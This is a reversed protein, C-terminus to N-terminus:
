AWDDLTTDPFILSSIYALPGYNIIPIGEKDREDEYVAWDMSTFKSNNLKSNVGCRVIYVEFRKRPDKEKDNYSTKAIVQVTSNAKNFGDLKINGTTMSKEKGQDDVITKWEDKAHHLWVVSANYKEPRRMVDMFEANAGGRDRPNIGMLRGFEAMLRLDFLETATDIVIRRVGGEIESSKLCMDYHELWKDWEVNAAKKVAEDMRRSMPDVKPFNVPYVALLDQEKLRDIAEVGEIRKDLDFLVVPNQAGTLAFSSKGTKTEGFISWNLRYKATPPVIFSGKELGPIKTTM